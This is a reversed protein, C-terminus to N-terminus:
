ETSADWSSSRPRRALAKITLALTVTSVSIWVHLIWPGLNALALLLFVLVAVDRKTFQIIWWAKREGLVLLGSNQIM